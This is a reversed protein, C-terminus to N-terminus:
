DEAFFELDGGYHLIRDALGQFRESAIAERILQKNKLPAKIAKSVLASEADIIRVHIFPFNFLEEYGSEKPIWIKESDEDYVLGNEILLKKLEIKVFTNLSILADMDGTQALTLFSSVKDNTLLSMQGLITIECKPVLLGGSEVRVRNEDAIKIDLTKFVKKLLKKM